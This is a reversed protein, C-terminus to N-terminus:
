KRGVFLVVFLLCQKLWIVLLMMMELFCGSSLMQITNQCEDNMHIQWTLLFADYTVHPLCGALCTM